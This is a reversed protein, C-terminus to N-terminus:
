TLCPDAWVTHMAWDCQNSQDKRTPNPSYNVLLKLWRSSGIPVEIDIPQDETRIVESRYLEKEDGLVSFVAGVATKKFHANGGIRAKFFKFAGPALYYEVFAERKCEPSFPPGLFAVMSIGQYDTIKGDAGLLGLPHHSGGSYPILSIDIMPQFRYLMDTDAAVWPYSRLDLCGAESDSKEALYCVTLLFDAFCRSSQNQVRGTMQRAESKKGKYLLDTIPVAHAAGMKQIKMLAAFAGMEAQQLNRGLLVPEYGSIDVPAKLGEINAHLELGIYEKPPPLVLDIIRTNVAHIPEAMDGIIHSYVGCFKIASKLDGVKLSQVANDLYYPILYAERLPSTGDEVEKETM